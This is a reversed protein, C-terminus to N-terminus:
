WLHLIDEWIWLVFRRILNFIFGREEEDDSMDSANINNSTEQVNRIEIPQCQVLALMLGCFFVLKLYNEMINDLIHKKNSSHLIFLNLPTGAQFFLPMRSGTKPDNKSNEFNLPM